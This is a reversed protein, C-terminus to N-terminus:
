EDVEIIGAGSREYDIMLNNEYIVRVAKEYYEQTTVLHNFENLYYASDNDFPHLGTTIYCPPMFSIKKAVFLAQDKGPEVGLRQLSPQAYLFPQLITGCPLKRFFRLRLPHTQAAMRFACIRLYAKNLFSVLGDRDFYYTAARTPLVNNKLSYAAVELPITKIRGSANIYALVFGDFDKISIEDYNVFEIPRGERLGKEDERRILVAKQGHDTTILLREIIKEAYIKDGEDLAANKRFYVYNGKHKQQSVATANKEEDWIVWSDTYHCSFPLGCRKLTELFFRLSFHEEHFKHFFYCKLDEDNLSLNNLIEGSYSGGSNNPIQSSIIWNNIHRGSLEDIMEKILEDHTIDSNIEKFASLDINTEENLADGGTWNAPYGREAAEAVFSEGM